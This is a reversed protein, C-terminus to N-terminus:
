TLARGNKTIVLNGIQFNTKYDGSDSISFDWLYSAQFVDRQLLWKSNCMYIYHIGSIYTTECAVGKASPTHSALSYNNHLQRHDIQMCARLKHGAQVNHKYGVYVTYQHIYSGAQVSDTQM